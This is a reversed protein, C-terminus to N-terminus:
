QSANSEYELALYKERIKSLNDVSTEVKKIWVGPMWGGPFADYYTYLAGKLETDSIPNLHLEKEIVRFLQVAALLNGAENWHRDKKFRWDEYNYNDVATKFKEFLDIVNIENPIIAKAINDTARPLLVIYFRGGNKEVQRKWRKLLLRFIRISYNLDDNETGEIFSRQIANARKSHFRRGRETRATREELRLENMSRTKGLLRQRTDLALYTIHLKSALKLWWPTDLHPNKVLGGTEDFTFLNNEYINRLDNSDFVYFVHRLYNAIKTNQYFIYSQDTGYGDVGFNLVNIKQGSLNLLYDLPETFSYQSRIRLNETSSDGFFALNIGSKLNAEKFNRHQRLSLNNHYIPHVEGSDPHKKYHRSNAKRAWIRVNNRDYVAEAAYEYKPYFYRLFLECLVLGIVVSVSLLTINILIKKLM